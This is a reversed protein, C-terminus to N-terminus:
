LEAEVQDPVAAGRADAVGAREGLLDRGRDLLGVQGHDGDQGAVAVELAPDVRVDLHVVEGRRRKHHRVRDGAGHVDVQYAFREPDVGGTRGHVQVVDPGAWLLDLRDDRRRDGRLHEGLVVRVDEGPVLAP